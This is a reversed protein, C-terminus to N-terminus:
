DPKRDELQRELEENLRRLRRSYSSYSLLGLLLGFTLMAHADSVGVIHPLRLALSCLVLVLSCIRLIKETLNMSNNM